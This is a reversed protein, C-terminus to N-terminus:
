DFIASIAAFTKGFLISIGSSKILDRKISSQIAGAICIHAV